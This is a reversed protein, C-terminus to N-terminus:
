LAMMPVHPRSATSARHSFSFFGCTRTSMVLMSRTPLMYLLNCAKNSCPRASAGTRNFRVCLLEEAMSDVRPSVIPASSATRTTTSGLSSGFVHADKSRKAFLMPDSVARAEPSVSLGALSPLSIVVASTDSLTLCNDFVPFTERSSQCKSAFINGCRYGKPVLEKLDSSSPQEMDSYMFFLNSKSCCSNRREGTHDKAIISRSM